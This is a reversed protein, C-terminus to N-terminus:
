DRTGCITGQTGGPTVRGEGVWSNNRSAESSKSLSNHLHPDKLNVIKLIYVYM